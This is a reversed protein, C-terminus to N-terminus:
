CIEKWRREMNLCAKCVPSHKLFGFTSPRIYNGLLKRRIKGYMTSYLSCLERSSIFLFLFSELLCVHGLCNSMVRCLVGFSTIYIPDDSSQTRLLGAADFGLDRAIDSLKSYSHQLCVLENELNANSTCSQRETDLLVQLISIEVTAVRM